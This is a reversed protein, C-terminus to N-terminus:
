TPRSAARTASMPTTAPRGEAAGEPRPLVEAGWRIAEACSTPARGAHDHIGPLRDSQRCARRRQHHEDDAGAPHAGARRRCLPLAAPGRGGGRGQGRGPQRRPDRQRRAAGQEAHRRARDHDPRHAVQDAADLGGLRTQLDRWEGRRGGQLVGKGGIASRTATACSSRRTRAPPPAPRCPPAAAHRRRGADCRGGRDSQRPQGPNGARSTSSACEHRLERFVPRRRTIDCAGWPDLSFGAVPCILAFRPIEPHRRDTRDLLGREAAALDTMVEKTQRPVDQIDALSLNLASVLDNSHSTTSTARWCGADITAGSWWARAACCTWSTPSSASRPAWSAASITWSRAAARRARSRACARWRASRLGLVDGRRPREDPDRRGSRWEPLSATIEAGILVVLWGLYM